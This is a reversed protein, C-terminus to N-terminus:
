SLTPIDKLFIEEGNRQKSLIGGIVLLMLEDTESFPVAPIGTRLYEVFKELQTKFGSYSDTTKIQLVGQTGSITITPDFIMDYISGIIVDFGNRHKLHVINHNQDDGINRVSVFGPGAIPYIAELAHIGYAEWSKCMNITMLRPIGVERIRGNQFPIFEKCYRMSSSSCFKVGDANAKRFFCLDRYNDCLPKDIFIPIGAEMFPKAREVHESGIDTAIIVADVKGIMEEPTDVVEQILSLKAVHEADKRQNCYVHTVKVGDIGITDYNEKNLYLPIGKYPCEKDMADRDYKNFIASWSYPHGNGPTMGIMGLRINSPDKVLAAM